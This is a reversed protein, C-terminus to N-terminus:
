WLCSFDVPPHSLRKFCVTQTKKKNSVWFRCELKALERKCNKYHSMLQSKSYFVEQAWYKDLVQLQEKTSEVLTNFMTTFIQPQEGLSEWFEVTDVIERWRNCVLSAVAFGKIDDLRPLM